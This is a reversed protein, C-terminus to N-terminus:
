RRTDVWGDGDFGVVAVRAGGGALRAALATLAAQGAQRMSPSRDVCLVRVPGAPGPVALGAPAACLLAAACAALGGSAGRRGGRAALWWAAVAVVAAVVLWVPAAVSM